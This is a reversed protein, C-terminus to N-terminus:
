HSGLNNTKWTSLWRHFFPKQRAEIMHHLSSLM